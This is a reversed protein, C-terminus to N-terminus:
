SKAHRAVGVVVLHVTEARLDGEALIDVRDEGCARRILAGLEVSEVVLQFLLLLLMLLHHALLALVALLHEVSSTPAADGVEHLRVVMLLHHM